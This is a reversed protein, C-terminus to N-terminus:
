EEIASSFSSPACSVGVFQGPRGSADDNTFSGHNERRRPAPPQLGAEVSWLFQWQGTLEAIGHGRLWNGYNDFSILPSEFFQQGGIEGAAAGRGGEQMGAGLPAQELAQVAAWNLPAQEARAATTRISRRKSRAVSVHQPKATSNSFQIQLSSPLPRLARRPRRINRRDRRLVHKRHRVLRLQHINRRRKRLAHKRHKSQRAAKYASNKEKLHQLNHRQAHSLPQGTEAAKRRDTRSLQVRCMIGVAMKINRGIVTPIKKTSIAMKGLMCITTRIRGSLVLAM